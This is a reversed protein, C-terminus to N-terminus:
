PPLPGNISTLTAHADHIQWATNRNRSHPRPPWPRTTTSSHDKRSRSVIAPAAHKRCYPCIAIAIESHNPLRSLHKCCYGPSTFIRVSASHVSSWWEAMELRWAFRRRWEWWASLKDTLVEDSWGTMYRYRLCSRKTV